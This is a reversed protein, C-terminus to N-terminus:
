RSRRVPGASAMGHAKVTAEPVPHREVTFGLKELLAAAREAHERCDGPPNDSPAKVMEALFAVEDRWHASLFAQIAAREAAM